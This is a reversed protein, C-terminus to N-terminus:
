MGLEELLSEEDIEDGNDEELWKQRREPNWLDFTDGMGVMLIDKTIGAHKLIAESLMIRGQKDCSLTCSNELFRALAKRKASNAISIKSINELLKATRKPPLVTIAGYKTAIAFYSNEADDGNFRWKSPLTVRRKDDLQKTFQEGCAQQILELPNVM